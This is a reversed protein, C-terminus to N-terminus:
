RTRPAIESYHTRWCEPCLSHSFQADSHEQVYQEIRTWSQRDTRIRRCVMCIPLIGQLTKVHALAAQLEEVRCALSDQLEVVRRGVDLRAALEGRHFPKTVYDNAGAELGRVVDDPDGRTTLLILYLPVDVPFGRARRCVELGDCGPMMWDVIALKPGGPASLIRLAEEGDRASTVEHDLRSVM